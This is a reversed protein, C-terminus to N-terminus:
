VGDAITLDDYEYHNRSDPSSKAFRVIEKRLASSEATSVFAGPRNM